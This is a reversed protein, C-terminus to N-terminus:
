DENIIMERINNLKNWKNWINNNAKAYAVAEELTDFTMRIQERTDTSIANGTLPDIAQPEDMVQRLEDFILYYLMARHRFSAYLQDRLEKESM